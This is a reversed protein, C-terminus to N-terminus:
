RLSKDFTKRQKFEEQKGENWQDVPRLYGVIRSYVECKTKKKNTECKPCYTHEGFIYGHVPCISFTPTITFYPLSFNECIKKVLTKIAEVSPKKEGLFIHMTTGGTYKTQLGDQLKLAEFIDDTFNVPLQTSNTYYPKAGKKVEENNAVIIEPFKKKDIRALRYSTGEAPTAELNYNNGTKEQFEVLKNRMFDLVEEAFKLGEKDGITCGLFNLCCENMGILGITSFHNKWYQNFRKKIDRLYFKSYPYLGKETLNELTKRKIELSNKALLMIKELKEFFEEKTKSLFGLRPMNITVVGISGTLPNAGFLGGGRKQLVRNDIRLRCCMSRVDEPKMESNIFNAFYPIGYKSTMEFIKDYNKNEFEFDKTINYTPIPFTFVRNNADGEIMVEAFANNFIDIEKQFDGYTESQPKGGIIVPMNKLHNPVVLDLTINTFPTNGTIFVKGNRRAIVTGNETNPCWIIGSYDVKKVTNIYTDNHKILRLVYIPKTGITPKRIHVTSGYGANSAISQLGNLIEINSTVIKCNEFSAAKMYTELFLRSQRQSMNLLIQPIFDVTKKNEFWKHIKKSSEANLRLRQVPNGMGKQTYESYKLKFHKLLKKIEEYNKKNKIASQYISIRYCSRYNKNPREVSGEGIIWAMLKIQEDSINIDKNSNNAAVPIIFPSKLKLIKEIPELVYKNTNFKKRVVKHRPSILQDQIRNKLNYMMGKYKRKFVSQVKKDEIIGKEINFTKIIDGKRIEKYTKWGKQTLIETDESLCQFGVRTPVNINFLFEQVAQKVQKYNLNDYRIFPALLTDFNSNHVVINNILFHENETTIDYVYVSNMKAEVIKVVKSSFEPSEKVKTKINQLKISHRFIPLKEEDVRFRLVYADKWNKKANKYASYRVTSNIGLVDLIQKLQMLLTYSTSHIRVIRERDIDGDGDIIGSILDGINENTLDFVFAPLNKRHSGEQLKLHNRIFRGMRTTGLVINFDENEHYPIKLKKLINEIKKREETNKKQSAVSYDKTQHGWCGEAIMFGILYAFDSQLKIKGTFNVSSNTSLLEDGERLENGRKITGNSLIVPHSRTIRLVNGDETEIILLEDNKNEIKHRSIAKLPIFGQETLVEIQDLQFLIPESPLRSDLYKRKDADDISYRRYINEALIVESKNLERALHKYDNFLMELTIFEINGNRKIVIPTQGDFSFAQAGASEGQLTYFFNVIQGLASRFHKAPKSEIKGRVGKFGSLLLDQLDWGVCYAGLIGLDHIHFEGNLHAQKIEPPYIKNLWYQSTIISSVHFNLGQLSYTMNANEKVRWDKMNLYNEIVEVNSFLDKIKRIEEHQKRYLIYSKATKYHGNEVLVKEVIDQVQEVTPIEGPGLKQKLIGIVEEGLRKATEYDQGGVSKAANFIANIIKDKEFSVIKGDRKKIKDIM